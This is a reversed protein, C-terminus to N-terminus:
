KRGIEPIDRLGILIIVYVAIKYIVIKYIKYLIILNFITLYKVFLPGDGAKKQRSLSDSLM